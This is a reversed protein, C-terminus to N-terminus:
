FENGPHITVLPPDVIKLNEEKEIKVSTSEVTKINDTSYEVTSEMTTINDTSYEVSEEINMADCEEKIILETHLDEQM